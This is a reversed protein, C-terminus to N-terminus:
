TNAWVIGPKCYSQVFVYVQKCSGRVTQGIDTDIIDKQIIFMQEQNNMWM